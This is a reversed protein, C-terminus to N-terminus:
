RPLNVLVSKGGYAHVSCHARVQVQGIGAPLEVGDLSRTFPQEDVHPHHLTRVALVRGGPALVEWRDAYHDWGQDAHLVSVTFRYVGPGTRSAEAQTVDAEGGLATATIAASIGVVALLIKKKM